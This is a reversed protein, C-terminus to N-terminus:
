LAGWTGVGDERVHPLGLSAVFVRREMPADEDFKMVASRVLGAAGLDTVREKIRFMSARRGLDRRLEAVTIGRMGAEEVLRLIRGELSLDSTSPAVSLPRDAVVEALSADRDFARDCAAVRSMVEPSFTLWLERRLGDFSLVKGIRQRTFRTLRRVRGIVRGAGERDTNNAQMDIARKISRVYPAAESLFIDIQDERSKSLRIKDLLDKFVYKHGGDHALFIAGNRKLRDVYEAHKAAPVANLVEFCFDSLRVGEKPIENIYCAALDAVAPDLYNAIQEPKLM